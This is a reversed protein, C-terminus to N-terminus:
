MSFVAGFKQEPAALIILLFKNHAEHRHLGRARKRAGSRSGKGVSLQLLRAPEQSAALNVM